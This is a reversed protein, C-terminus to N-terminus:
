LEDDEHTAGGGQPVVPIVGPTTPRADVEVYRPVNHLVTTGGGRQSVTVDGMNGYRVSIDGYGMAVRHKGFSIARVAREAVVGESLGPEAARIRAFEAQFNALNQWALQGGMNLPGTGFKKVYADMARQLSVDTWAFGKPAKLIAPSGDPLTANRPHLTLEPGGLPKGDPGLRIDATGFKAGSTVDVLDCTLGGEGDPVFDTARIRAPSDIMIEPGSPKPFPDFEESKPTPGTRRSPIRDSVSKIVAHFIGVILINALLHDDWDRGTALNAVVTGVGAGGMVLLTGGVLGMGFFGAAMGAGGVFAGLLAAHGVGDYWRREPDPDLLNGTIQAAAFGAAGAAAGVILAVALGPLTFPAAAILLAVGVGVAIGVAIGVVLSAVFSWDCMGKVATWADSLQDSVWGGLRSLWGGEQAEAAERMAGAVQASTQDAHEIGERTGGALSATAESVNSTVSERIQGVSTDIEGSVRDVEGSAMSRGEAVTADVQGGAADVVECVGTEATSGLRDMNAQTEAEWDSGAQAASGAAGQLSQRMEAAHGDTAEDLAPGMRDLPALAEDRVEPPLGGPTGGEVGADGPGADGAGGAGGDPQRQLAQVTAGPGAAGPPPATDRAVGALQDIADRGAEDVLQSAQGAVKAQAVRGAALAMDLSADGEARLAEGRGQAAKDVNDIEGTVGAQAADLQQAGQRVVQDVGDDVSGLLTRIGERAGDGSKAVGDISPEAEKGVQERAKEAQDRVDRALQDGDNRLQGAFDRAVEMVADAKDEGLDEDEETQRYRAAEDRGLALARQALDHAHDRGRQAEAEGKARVDEDAGSFVGRADETGRDVTQTLRATEDDIAQAAQEHGAEGRQRVSQRSTSVTAAVRARTAGIVAGVAQRSAQVAGRVGGRQVAAEDNLDSAARAANATARTRLGAIRENIAEGFGVLGPSVSDVGRLRALASESEPGPGSAEDMPITLDDAPARGAEVQARIAEPEAEPPIADRPADPATVAEPPEVPARRLAALEGHLQGTAADAESTDPRSPVEGTSSRPAPTPAGGGSRGSPADGRLGLHHEARRKFSRGADAVAAASTEDSPTRAVPTPGPATAEAAAAGGPGRASATSTSREAAPPADTGARRPTGPRRRQRLLRGVAKNGASRQLARVGGSSLGAQPSTSGVGDTSSSTRGSASAAPSRTRRPQERKQGAWEAM